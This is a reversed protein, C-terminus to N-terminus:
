QWGSRALRQILRDAWAHLHHLHLEARVFVERASRNARALDAPCERCLAEIGSRELEAHFLIGYAREGYRFAQLCVDSVALAVAGDPLDFVEGHWEFVEWPDPATCFAADKAGESTLRIATMGMELAPGPYVKAGLAKALFQSGLCIGLYPVGANVAQRIFTLEENIWPDPDNVSMPGGMVLLFEGPGAPLGAEPVVRQEVQYGCKELLRKFVGPGEFRVHQLCVAHKSRDPSM